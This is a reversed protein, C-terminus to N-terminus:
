SPKAGASASSTTGKADFSPRREARRTPVRKLEGAMRSGASGAGELNVFWLMWGTWFGPRASSAHDVVKEPQCRLRV